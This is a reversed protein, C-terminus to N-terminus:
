ASPVVVVRQGGSRLLTKGTKDELIHRVRNTLLGEIDKFHTFYKGDYKYVDDAFTGFDGQFFGDKFIETVVHNSLGEKETYHAFSQGNYKLVGESADCWINGSHDEQISSICYNEVEEIETFHTFYKGDYKILKECLGFWINGSHDELISGVTEFGLETERPETFHTFYIGDFKIIAGGVTGFWLNGSRDEIMSRIENSRENEEETFKFHYFFKGDYKSLGTQTGMWLNGLHDYAMCIIAGSRLGQRRGFKSFNHPNQEKVVAEKAVVIEPIGSKIKKGRALVKKPRAFGNKGVNIIKPTGALVVKPKGAPHINTNVAVVRPKGVPIKKLKSEDILIVKPQTMSDAPIVHGIAPVITISNTNSPKKDDSSCSCNMALWVILLYKAHHYYTHKTTM